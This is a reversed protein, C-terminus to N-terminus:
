ILIREFESYHTINLNDELNEERVILDRIFIIRMGATKFAELCTKGFNGKWM